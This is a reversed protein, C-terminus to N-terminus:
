YNIMINKEIWEKDIDVYELRNNNEDVFYFKDADLMTEHNRQIGDSKTLSEDIYFYNYIYYDNGNETINMKMEYAAEPKIHDHFTAGYVYLGNSIDIKHIYIIENITTNGNETISDIGRLIYEKDEAFNNDNSSHSNSSCASVLIVLSLLIAIKIGMKM